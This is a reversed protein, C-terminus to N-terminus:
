SMEAWVISRHCVPDCNAFAFLFGPPQGALRVSTLLWGGAVATWPIIALVVRKRAGYRRTQQGTDPRM